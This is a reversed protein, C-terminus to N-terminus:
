RARSRLDQDAGLLIRWNPQRSFVPGPACCLRVIRRIGCTRCSSAVGVQWDPLYWRRGQGARSGPRLGTTACALTSGHRSRSPSRSRSEILLASSELRGHKVLMGHPRVSQLLSPM